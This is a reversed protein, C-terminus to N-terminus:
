NASGGAAFLAGKKEYEGWCKSDSGKTKAMRFLSLQNGLITSIQIERIVRSAPFMKLCNNPMETEQIQFGETCTM